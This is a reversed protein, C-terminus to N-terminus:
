QTDPTREIIMVERCLKLEEIAADAVMNAHDREAELKAVRARWRAVARHVRLNARRDTM